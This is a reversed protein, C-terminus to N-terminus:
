KLSKQLMKAHELHEKFLPVASQLLAKLEANQAQPILVTEVASIVATHYAVENDVYAKDFAKGKKSKLDKKTKEAQANLSKSVANDEPTVKLKTVLKTAMGIIASHDTAMTKAFKLVQPNKTKSEAIKAYNIDIQNATVAVHAIQADNLKTSQANANSSLLIAGAFAGAALILNKIPKM